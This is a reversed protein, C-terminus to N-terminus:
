RARGPRRPPSPPPAPPADRRAGGPAPCSTRRRRAPPRRLGPGLYVRRVAEDRVVEAATGSMLVQGDHLIYARDVLSLTERVNHDTILVGIGREKLGLVLGRIEGM